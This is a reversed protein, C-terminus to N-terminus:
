ICAESIKLVKFKKGKHGIRTHQYFIKGGDTLKIALAILIMIPTTIIIAFFSFVIDFPRKWFPIKNEM